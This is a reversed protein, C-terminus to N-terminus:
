SQFPIKSDRLKNGQQHILNRYAFFHYLLIKSVRDHNLLITKICAPNRYIKSSVSSLIRGRLNGKRAFQNIALLLALRFLLMIKRQKFLFIISRFM